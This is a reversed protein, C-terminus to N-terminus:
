GAAAVCMAIADFLIMRPDRQWIRKRPAKRTLEPFIKLLRNSVDHKPATLPL